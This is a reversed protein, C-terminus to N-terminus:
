LRNRRLVGPKSETMTAVVGVIDTFSELPMIPRALIFFDTRALSRGNWGCYNRKWSVVKRNAVLLADVFIDRARNGINLDL